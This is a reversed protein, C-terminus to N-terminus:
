EEEANPGPPQIPDAKADGSSRYGAYVLVLAFWMWLGTLAQFSTPLPMMTYEEDRDARRGAPIDM